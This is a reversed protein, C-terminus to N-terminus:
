ERTRGAGGRLEWAVGLERCTAVAQTEGLTDVLKGLGHKCVKGVFGANRSSAGFGPTDAELSEEPRPAAPWRWPETRFDEAFIPDTM